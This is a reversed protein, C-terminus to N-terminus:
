HVKQAISKEDVKYAEAKVLGGFSVYDAEAENISPSRTESCESM